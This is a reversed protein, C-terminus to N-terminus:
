INKIHAARANHKPIQFWFALSKLAKFNMIIINGEFGQIKLKIYALMLCDLPIQIAGWPNMEQSM